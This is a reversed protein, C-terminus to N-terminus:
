SRYSSFSFSVCKDEFVSFDSVLDCVRLGNRAAKSSYAPGIGKKTTGLSFSLNLLLFSRWALGCLWHFCLFKERKLAIYVTWPSSTSKGKRSSGSSSKFEMLLKISTSCQPRVSPVTLLLGRRRWFCSSFSSSEGIHARESIKLREEWGQLGAAFGFVWPINEQQSRWCRLWRCVFCSTLYRHSQLWLRGRVKAKRSTRRQRKSCAQFTSWWETGQYSFHPKWEGFLICVGDM